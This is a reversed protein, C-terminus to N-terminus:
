IWPQLHGWNEMVYCDIKKMSSVIYCLDQWHLWFNRFFSFSSHFFPSEDIMITYSLGVKQVTCAVETKVFAEIHYSILTSQAIVFWTLLWAMAKAKMRWIFVFWIKWILYQLLPMPLKRLTPQCSWFDNYNCYFTPPCVDKKLLPWAFFHTPMHGGQGGLELAGSNPWIAM